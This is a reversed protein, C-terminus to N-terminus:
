KYYENIANKIASSFENSNNILKLLDDEYSIYGLEILYAEATQNSHYYPNLGYKDNRGDVYAHTLKGGVERIMYMEPTGEEIDYAKLGQKIYEDNTELISDKTFSNFYIGDEIKNYKKKSYNNVKSLKNALLRALTYDSDNPIYVEVGGYNMTNKESNLHLSICLKTHYKNPLVARGSEGYYDLNEDSDRTILVKYGDKELEHKLKMAIELAIDAENYTVGNYKYSAGSDIGGHGPDITIDYVDNPLKSQKININTYNINKNDILTKDFKINIKNNGNNNSITYYEINDYTTDNKLSYYKIKEKDEYKILLYYNGVDLKDLNIGTNILNSTSFFLKNDKLEFNCDLKIEENDNKLVLSFNDFSINNIDLIGNINFHNGYIYFDTISANINEVNSLLNNNDEKTNVKNIYLYCFVIFLILIILGLLKKM